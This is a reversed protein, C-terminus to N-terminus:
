REFRLTVVLEASLARGDSARAPEFEKDRLCARAAIGFGEQEPKERLLSVSIVRGQADVRLQVRVEGRDTQAEAPFYGKCPDAEGLRPPQVSVATPGAAPGSALGTGGGGSPSGATVAGPAGGGAALAYGAGSADHSFHFLPPPSAVAPAPAPATAAPAAQAAAPAAARPARRAAPRAPTAPLSQEHPPPPVEHHPQPPALRVVTHRAAPPAPRPAVKVLALAAHVGLAVVLACIGRLRSRDRPAPRELARALAASLAPSPARSM